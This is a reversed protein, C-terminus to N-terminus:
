KIKKMVDVESYFVSDSGPSVSRLSETSLAKLRMDTPPDTRNKPSPKQPSSSMTQQAYKSPITINDSKGVTVRESGTAIPTKLKRTLPDENPNRARPSSCSICDRVLFYKILFNVVIKYIYITGDLKQDSENLKRNHPEM